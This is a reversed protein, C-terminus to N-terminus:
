MLLSTISLLVMSPWGSRWKLLNAASAATQTAPAESGTATGNSSGSARIAAQRTVVPYAYSGNLLAEEAGYWRLLASIDGGGAPGPLWNSTWNAPPTVDASQLLIQYEGDSESANTGYVRIGSAYTINSRDGLSYINRDNPILYGDADYVTLSWFGAEKLPPKGSFTYLLAEDAGISLGGNSLSANASANTWSPYIANPAKLMLYGSAAVSARLAYNTGFDGTENEAIMGWGNTLDVTAAKAAEAAAVLATQNALTLNVGDPATYLGDRIGAVELTTNVVQEDAKVDPGTLDALTALLNLVNEAPTDSAKVGPLDTLYPEIVGGVDTGTVNKLVTANQWGHVVEVNTGNVLWRILVVGYVSPSEVVAVYKGFTGEGGTAEVGRGSSGNAPVTLLYDGAQGINGTGVNGFNDGYPDYFSFLAFQDPPIDPITLVVDSHSLDFIAQSYLTDVNPKVVATSAATALQRAHVLTNVGGAAPILANAFKEFALLPYGYTLAFATEATVNQAATANLQALTTTTLILITVLAALNAMALTSKRTLALLDV